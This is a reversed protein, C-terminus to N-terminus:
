TSIHIVKSLLVVTAAFANKELEVLRYLANTNVKREQHLKTYNTDYIRENKKCSYQKMPIKGM